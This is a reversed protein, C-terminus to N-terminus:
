KQIYFKVSQNKAGMFKTSLFYMGSSLASVDITNSGNHLVIIM